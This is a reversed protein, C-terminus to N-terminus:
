VPFSGFGTKNETSSKKKNKLLIQTVGSQNLKEAFINGGHWEESDTAPIKLTLDHV